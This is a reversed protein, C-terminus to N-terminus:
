PSSDVPCAFSFPLLENANLARQSHRTGHHAACRQLPQTRAQQQCCHSFLRCHRRPGASNRQAQQLLLARSVQRQGRQQACGAGGAPLAGQHAQRPVKSSSSAKSPHHHKMLNGPATGRSYPLTCAYASLSPNSSLAYMAHAPAPQEPRLLWSQRPVSSSPAPLARRQPSAARPRRWCCESHASQHKTKCVEQCEQCGWGHLFAAQFIRSPLLARSATSMCTCTRATVPLPTAAAMAAAPVLAATCLGTPVASACGMRARGRRASGRTHGALRLPAMGASAARYHNGSITSCIRENPIQCHSLVLSRSLHSVSPQCPGFTRQCACHRPLACPVEPPCLLYNFFQM